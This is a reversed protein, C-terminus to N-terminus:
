DQGIDSPVEHCLDAEQADEPFAFPLFTLGLDIAHPTMLMDIHATLKEKNLFVDPNRISFRGLLWEESYILRLFDCGTTEM